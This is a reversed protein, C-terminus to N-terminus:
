KRYSKQWKIRYGILWEIFDAKSFNYARINVGLIFHDYFHYKIGVRQYTTPVDVGEFNKQYVYFGPQAVFSFQNLVLEFSPFVGILMKDATNFPAKVPVNNGDLYIDSGYAQNYTIDFGAGFKVKHSIQRNFSSSLSVIPYNFVAAMTDPNGEITYAFALQKWSPALLIVWEWERKYVPIKTKIFDPRSKFIYQLQMLVSAANIGLNPMEISGNSYHTFTIGVTLDFQKGLQFSVTPGMEFFVTPNSGVPYFYEDELPQHKNWNWSVGMEIEYGISWKKYRKLPLNIFSYVSLPSGLATDGSVFGAHFGFGWVPYAYLQQWQKLGSTHIAYKASVGQFFGLPEGAPNHGKEYDHAQMITGLQYYLGIAKPNRKKSEPISDGAFLVKQSLIFGSLFLLLFIFKKYRM